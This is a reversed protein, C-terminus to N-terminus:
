KVGTSEHLVTIIAYFATAAQSVPKKQKVQIGYNGSIFTPNDKAWLL